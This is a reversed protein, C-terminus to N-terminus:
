IKLIYRFYTFNKSQNIGVKHYNNLRAILIIKNDKSRVECDFLKSMSVSTVVGNKQCDSM